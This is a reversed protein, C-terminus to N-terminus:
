NILVHRNTIKFTFPKIFQLASLAQDITEKHFIGTFHYNGISQNRIEITINFWREMEPALEELTENQFVLKDDVWSVERVYEKDEVEVAQIDQIVLKEKRATHPPSAPDSQWATDRSVAANHSGTPGRSDPTEDILAFKEKPKLLFKQYPKNNVTLEISGGMLTAETTKDRPYAKVNFVTGLVRIAIKDTHIVFCRDKDKAVDFFAEGSLTVTREDKRLMNSDYRLRSGTNLRVKTGDPLLITQRDGDRTVFEKNSDTKGSGSHRKQSSRQSSFWFLGGTLIAGLIIWAPAGRKLRRSRRRLFSGNRSQGADFNGALPDDGDSSQQGPTAQPRFRPNHRALHRLYANDLLPDTGSSSKRAQEEEWLQTILEAYYMAEPHSLLLQGLETLEEATAEGSLKRGLLQICRTDIM